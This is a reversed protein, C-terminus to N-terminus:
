CRIECVRALYDKTEIIKYGNLSEIKEIRSYTGGISLFSGERFYGSCTCKIQVGVKFHPKHPKKDKGKGKGKCPKKTKTETINNVQKNVSEPKLHTIMVKLDIPM